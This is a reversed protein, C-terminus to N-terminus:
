PEDDRKRWEPTGNIMRSLEVARDLNNKAQELRRASLKVDADQLEGSENLLGVARLALSHALDWIESATLDVKM